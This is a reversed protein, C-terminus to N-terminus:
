AANPDTQMMGFTNGDPDIGYALWGVGPVAMKPLAITGNLELLRVLQADLDDVGITCVFANASPGPEPRACPRQVLGGHIGPATDPGTNIIWYPLPGPWKQFSWGFMGSYFAIAADPDTAHIEFHIVRSM